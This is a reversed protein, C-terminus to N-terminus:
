IIYAFLEVTASYISRQTVSLRQLRPVIEHSDRTPYRDVRTVFCDFHSYVYQLIFFKYIDEVKHIELLSFLPDTHALYYEAAVIRFWVAAHTGGCIVSYYLLYTHVFTYYLNNLINTPLIYKLKCFIGSTKSIKNCIHLIHKEFNLQNDIVM